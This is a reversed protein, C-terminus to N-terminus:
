EEFYVRKVRQSIGSMVEYAITGSWAAIQNISLAQGFVLVEDGEQVGAITTVDLMTMDMCVTGIVPAQQGRVLMYGVGNSLSRPYGDAYGIRVTAIVSPKTIVGRRNYGVTEGAQLHKLQAITTKLTLAEELKGHPAAAIGFMGIGARVMDYQLAAHRIIGSTNTIHKLFPERTYQQLVACAEEFLKAQHETFADEGAAEAAALHSFVSQITFYNEQQLIDTLHQLEHQMFGLRHMGTDIKIHVPYNRLGESELFAAFAKTIHPSYLEPELNYEILADFSVAEPNMVMIPLQIGAKRLEVGEDAFAVALYDVGHYQLMNAIEYSGSGYSFAKVMAMLKVQPQLQSRITKINNAIATLNIELVTQHIQQELLPMLQELGFSRAGKILVAEDQIQLTPLHAILEDTNTFFTYDVSSSLQDKFYNQAVTGVSVVHQIAHSNILEALIKYTAAEQEKSVAMDSLIIRKQAHQQQQQLFNLALEFSQVDASYSDNILTCHHKGKKLELRLSVPKLETLKAKLKEKDMGLHLCVCICTLINHLSAEDTFPFVMEMLENKWQVSLHSNNGEKKVQLLQLSNNPERGWTITTLHKTSFSLGKTQEPSYILVDATQFLLAKEKFKEADNGFGEKHADGLNTFVGIAPQIIQQLAQMEEKQSIGAEFIGLNHHPELLWVSLPVGVQSNYSKPSRAISYDDSLLQYLWEKVMTKGNSGTIGIVPISCQKRHYAALQQLAKLTDDVLMFYANPFLAADQEESVVFCRVGKEYCQKIFAHGNRRETKLAFFLSHAPHVIRRSDICLHEILLDDPVAATDANLVSAITHLSYSGM